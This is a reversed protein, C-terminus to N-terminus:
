AERAYLSVLRAVLVALYLQGFMAELVALARAASSLPVFDGYGLTALTVFSFYVAEDLSVPGPGRAAASGLAGPAAADLAAFVGAFALGVLLYASLAAAIREADVRGARLVYPLLVAASWLTAAALLGRRLALGPGLHVFHLFLWVVLVAGIGLASARSAQERRAGALAALLSLALLWELGRGAFGLADLAPDVGITAILATFLWAFRHRLFSAVVASLM